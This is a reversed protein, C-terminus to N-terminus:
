RSNVPSYKQKKDEGLSANVAGTLASLAGIVYLSREGFYGAAATAGLIMTGTFLPLHIILEYKSYKSNGDAAFATTLTPGENFFPLKIGFFKSIPSATASVVTYLTALHLVKDVTYPALTASLHSLVRITIFSATSGAICSITTFVYSSLPVQRFMSQHAYSNIKHAVQHGAIVPASCVLTNWLNGSLDARTISSKVGSILTNWTTSAPLLFHDNFLGKATAIVM